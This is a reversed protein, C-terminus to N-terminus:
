MINVIGFILEIKDPLRSLFIVQFINDWKGYFKAFVDSIPLFYFECFKLTLAYTTVSFNFYHLHRPTPPILNIPFLIDKRMVRDTPEKM